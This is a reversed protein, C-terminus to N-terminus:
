SVLLIKTENLRQTRNWWKTSTPPKIIKIAIQNNIHLFTIRHNFTMWKQPHCAKNWYTLCKTIQQDKTKKIIKFYRTISLDLIKIELSPRAQHCKEQLALALERHTRFIQKIQWVKSKPINSDTAKLDKVQKDVLVVKFVERDEWVPQCRLFIMIIEVLRWPDEALSERFCSRGLQSRILHELCPCKKLLLNLSNKLKSDTHKMESTWSINRNPELKPDPTYKNSTQLTIPQAGQTIPNLLAEEALFATTSIHDELGQHSNALMQCQHLLEGMWELAWVIHKTTIIIIRSSFKTAKKM